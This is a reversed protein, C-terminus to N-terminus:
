PSARWIYGTVSKEAEVYEEVEICLIGNKASAFFTERDMLDADESDSLKFNMGSIQFATIKGSENFTIDGNELESVDVNVINNHALGSRIYYDICYTPFSFYLPVSGYDDHEFNCEVAGFKDHWFWIGDNRYGFGDEDTKLLIDGHRPRIFLRAEFKMVMPKGIRRRMYCPGWRKELENFMEDRMMPSDIHKKFDCLDLLKKADELNDEGLEWLRSINLGRERLEGDVKSYENFIPGLM